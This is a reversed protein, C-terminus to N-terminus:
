PTCRAVQSHTCAVYRSYSRSPTQSHNCAGYHSNSRSPTGVARPIRGRYCAKGDPTSRAVKSRVFIHCNSNSLPSTVVGRKCTSGQQAFVFFPAQLNDECLRMTTNTTLTRAAHTRTHAKIRVRRVHTREYVALTRAHTTMWPTTSSHQVDYRTLEETNQHSMGMVDLTAAVPTDPAVAERSQWAWNGTIARSKDVNHIAAKCKDVTNNGLLTGPGCGLENCLSWWVQQFLM